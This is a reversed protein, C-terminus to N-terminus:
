TAFFRRWWAFSTHGGLVYLGESGAARFAHLAALFAAEPGKQNVAGRGVVVKGFGAKAVSSAPPTVDM